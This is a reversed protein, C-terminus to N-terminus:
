LKSLLLKEAIKFLLLQCNNGSCFMKGSGSHRCIWVNSLLVLLRGNRVQWVSVWLKLQIVMATFYIFQVMLYDKQKSFM